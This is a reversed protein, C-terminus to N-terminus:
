ALAFEESALEPVPPGRWAALAADVRDLRAQPDDLSGAASVAARLVNADVSEPDAVLRYGGEVTEVAAAGGTAALAKRVHSVLIRLANVRDVPSADHWLVDILTDTSVREGLRLVLAALLKRPRGTRLPVVDAGVRVELPGLIRLEVAM